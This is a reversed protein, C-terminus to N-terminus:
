ALVNVLVVLVLTVVVLVGLLMFINRWIVRDDGQLVSV